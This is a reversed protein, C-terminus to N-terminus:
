WIRRDAHWRLRRGEWCFGVAVHLVHQLFPARRQLVDAIIAELRRLIRGSPLRPVTDVRHELVRDHMRNPMRELEFPQHALSSGDLYALGPALRSRRAKRPRVSKCGSSPTRYFEVPGPRWAASSPMFSSSAAAM